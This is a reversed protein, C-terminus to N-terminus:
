KLITHYLIPIENILSIEKFNIRLVNKVFDLYNKKFYSNRFFRSEFRTKGFKM